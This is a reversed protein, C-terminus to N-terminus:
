ARSSNCRAPATTLTPTCPYAVHFPADGYIAGRLTEVDRYLASIRPEAGAPAKSAMAWPDPRPPPPPPPALAKERAAVVEPADPIEVRITGKATGRAALARLTLRWSSRGAEVAVDIRQPSPGSRRWSAGEAAGDLRLALIRPGTWSATAALTGAHASEFPIEFAAPEDAAIEFAYEITEARAVGALLFPALLVAPTRM